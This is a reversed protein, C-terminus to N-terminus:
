SFPAPPGLSCTTTNWLEPDSSAPAWFNDPSAASAAASTILTREFAVRGPTSGSTPCAGYRWDSRWLLGHTSRSDTRESSKRLSPRALDWLRRLRTAGHAHGAAGRIGAAPNENPHPLPAIPRRCASQCRRPQGPYASIRALPRLPRPLVVQRQRVPVDKPTGPLCNKAAHSLIQRRGASMERTAPARTAAPDESPSTDSM